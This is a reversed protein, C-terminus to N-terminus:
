FGTRPTTKSNAVLNRCLRSPLSSRFAQNLQHVQDPDFRHGRGHWLGLMLCKLLKCSGPPVSLGQLCTIGRSGAYRLVYRLGARKWNVTRAVPLDQSSNHSESERGLPQRVQVQVRFSMLTRSKREKIECESSCVPCSSM